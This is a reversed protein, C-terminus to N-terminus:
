ELLEFLVYIQDTTAALVEVCVIAVDVDVRHHEGFAVEFYCNVPEAVDPGFADFAYIEFKVFHVFSILLGLLLLLDLSEIHTQDVLVPEPVRYAEKVSFQYRFPHINHEPAMLM